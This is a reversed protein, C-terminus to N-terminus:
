REIDDDEITDIFQLLYRLLRVYGWGKEFKLNETDDLIKDDIGMLLAYSHRLRKSPVKDEKEIANIYAPSVLLADAMERVTKGSAIRLLYYINTNNEMKQTM